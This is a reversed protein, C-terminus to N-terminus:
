GTFHNRNQTHTPKPSITRIILRDEIHVGKCMNQVYKDVSYEYTLELIEVISHQGQTKFQHVCEFMYDIINSCILGAHFHAYIQVLSTLVAM